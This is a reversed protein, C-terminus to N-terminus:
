LIKRMTIKLSESFGLGSKFEILGFNAQRDITSTGVDMIRFGQDRGYRYITDALAVVPSKNSYEPRDGWYFVYLVTSSLRLCLAAAAYHDGDPCGFLVVDEPFTNAMLQLQELTMSMSNGKSARNIALTEYVKSLSSHPLHIAVLNERDCKRLRKLNGYSMRESLSRSDIELSQNIDCKTTEFGFSRLLFVQKAFAASDHSQPALLVELSKAGKSRLATQVGDFFAFLERFKLDEVFSLGAYTGRAPSRWTGSEDIPTFHVNAKVKGSRFLEFYAAGSHAHMLFFPAKQFLVDTESGIFTNEFIKYESM